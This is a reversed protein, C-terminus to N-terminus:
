LHNTLFRDPEVPKRAFSEGSWHLLNGHESEKNGAVALMIPHLGPLLRISGSPFEDSQEGRDSDIIVSEHVRMVARVGAPLSFEYNDETAVRIYGKFVFLIRSDASAPPIVPMPTIQGGSKPLFRDDSIWPVTTHWSYMTLGPVEDGSPSVQPIALRDLYPRPASSNPRRIRLVRDKMQQQLAPNGSALNQRQSPDKLIDYIEFDDAHSLIDYRVGVLNGARIMQMQNRKGNRRKQLFDGNSPMNSQVAYEIYVTSPLPLKGTQLLTVLTVGDTKAPAPVGALEAFTPMWDHFQSPTESTIGAPIRGPWRAIAGVRIGGEYCDRKIGDFPGYGRFFGPKFEMSYGTSDRGKLYSEKSPGNDSTFVVLTNDEIGLDRLTAILDSVCDDIRRVMGAYRKAVDPWPNAKGPRNPDNWTASAYEPHYWSDIKGTASNIMRGNEGLWQLGGTLGTGPPYPSSPLQTKAHPTDYSLYLFFPKQPREKRHDIIFKKARATFLDTTYCRDYFGSVERTGEHLEKKNEKPYHMHGQGHGLYGFFEDFGRSQPHATLTKGGQLGWKGICTTHYGAEKLVSAITHNNELAKDFQNDRVNSHGQHVGLLLSARAPACVPAATYHGRLRIGENALADLKPTARIPVGAKRGESGDNKYFAGIDGFGLDDCLIFIINPQRSSGSSAPLPVEGAALPATSVSLLALARSITRLISSRIM